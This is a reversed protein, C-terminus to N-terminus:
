LLKDRDPQFLYTKILIRFLMKEEGNVGEGAKRNVKRIAEEM